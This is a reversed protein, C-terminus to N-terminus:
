PMNSDTRMQLCDNMDCSANKDKHVELPFCQLFEVMNNVRDFSVTTSDGTQLYKCLKSLIEQNNKTNLLIATLETTLKELSVNQIQGKEPNVALQKLATLSRVDFNALSILKSIEVLQEFLDKDNGLLEIYYNM